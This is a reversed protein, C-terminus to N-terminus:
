PLKTTFGVTKTCTEEVIEVEDMEHRIYISAPPFLALNRYKKPRSVMFTTRAPFGGNM